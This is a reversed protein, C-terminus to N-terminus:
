SGPQIAIAVSNSAAGGISVALGVAEGVPAAAPV